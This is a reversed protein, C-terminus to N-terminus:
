WCSCACYSASLKFLNVM